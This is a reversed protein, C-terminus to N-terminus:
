ITLDVPQPVTHTPVEPMFEPIQMREVALAAREEPSLVKPTSKKTMLWYAVGAAALPLVPLDKRPNSKARRKGLFLLAAAGIGLPVLLSTEKEAGPALGAAQAQKLLEQQQTYAAVQAIQAQIQAQQAAQAARRQQEAAQQQAYATYTQVGSDIIKQIDQWTSTQGTQAQQQQTAGVVTNAISGVASFIDAFNIAGLDGLGALDTLANKEDVVRDPLLYNPNTYDQIIPPRGVMADPDFVLPVDDRDVLNWLERPTKFSVIDLKSPYTGGGPRAMQLPDQLLAVDKPVRAERRMMTAPAPQAAAFTKAVDNDIGPQPVVFFNSAFGDEYLKPHGDAVQVDWNTWHHPNAFPDMGLGSIEPTLEEDGSVGVSARDWIIKNKVGHTPQWGVPASQVIADIPTWRNGSLVELYVHSPEGDPRTSVTVFRTPFGLVEAMASILVVYDDCDARGVELTYKPAQLLEVGHPDRRYDVHRRVWDLITQLERAYNKWVGKMQGNVIGYVIKQFEPDTKADNVLDWMKKITSETFRPAEIDELTSRV